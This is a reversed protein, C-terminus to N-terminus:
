LSLVKVSEAITQQKDLLAHIDEPYLNLSVVCPEQTINEVQLNDQQQADAFLRGVRVVEVVAASSPISTADIYRITDAVVAPLDWQQVLLLGAAAQYADILVQLQSRELKLDSNQQALQIVAQLVVPKGLQFLLGSLFSQEVNQRVTRAIERSWAAAFLAHQWLESVEKEYGSVPFQKPGLCAALAIETVNQMGLRAVAQQLSALQITPSYAASNAVRLVHGALAQDSQILKALQAADSDDDNALQLVQSAIQPLLPLEIRGQEIQQQLETELRSDVDAQM